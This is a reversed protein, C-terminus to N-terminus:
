PALVECLGSFDEEFFDHKGKLFTIDGDFSVVYRGVDVFVLGEGPVTIRGVTGNQNATGAELDVIEGSNITGTVSEGTVSNIFTDSGWVHEVIRSPSGEADFFLKGSWFLEFRDWIDFDGCDAVKEFGSFSGKEEVPPTAGAQPSGVLVAAVALAPVIFLINANRPLHM